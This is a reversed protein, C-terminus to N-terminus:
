GGPHPPQFSRQIARSYKSRSTGHPPLNKRAARSCGAALKQILVEHMGNVKIGKEELVAKAREGDEVLFHAIGKGEHVFVGGGELSIAAAGLAEGMGALAGPKNELLIELDMM